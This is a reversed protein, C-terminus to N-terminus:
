WIYWYIFLIEESAGLTNFKYPSRMTSEDSCTMDLSFAIVVLVMDLFVAIVVLVAAMYAGGSLIHELRNPTFCINGSLVAHYPEPHPIKKKKKKILRLCLTPHHVFDTFRLSSGAESGSCM